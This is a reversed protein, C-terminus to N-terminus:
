KGKILSFYLVSAKNMTIVTINIQNGQLDKQISNETFDDKQLDIFTFIITYM